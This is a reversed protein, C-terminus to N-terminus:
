DGAMMRAPKLLGNNSLVCVGFFKGQVNDFVRVNLADAPLSELLVNLGKRLRAVDENGLYLAPIDDLPSEISILINRRDSTDKIKQLKEMSIIDKISFFGSRKRRLESVYALSKLKQAMDRALGRIYTGKSCLVELTVRKERLNEGIIRLELIEIEKPRLIPTKGSRVLDCARTGHIKVASFVPPTQKQRGIFEPIVDMIDKEVPIQNTTETIEGNKDLSDTTQGFVMTFTYLKESENIFKIYKRAEGVAIPLVGTAFPDLTGVYGMKEGFIRRVKIMARNSSIGEPKDLCLWGSISGKM